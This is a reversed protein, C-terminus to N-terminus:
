LRTARLMTTCFFFTRDKWFDPRVRVIRKCLHDLVQLYCDATITQGPPVFEKYVVGRSDFFLILMTKIRSQQFKWKKPRPEHKVIWEASQRKTAPDYAFCWTEDITIIMKVFDPETAFTEVLDKAHAVRQNRQERTLTHPVFRTCVKRRQLHERLIVHVRTKPIGLQQAVERCSTKRDQVLALWVREINKDKTITSPRGSRQKDHVDERGSAFSNYWRFASARSMVNMKYTTKLLEYAKTALFSASFCFKLAYRQELNANM